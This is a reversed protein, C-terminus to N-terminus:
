IYYFKVLRAATNESASNTILGNVKINQQELETFFEETTRVIEDGTIRKAECDAAKWIVVDGLSTILITGLLHQRSVNKWGDFALTVGFQDNKANELLIESESDIANKLIRGGLVLRSLLTIMPNLWHFLRKVADNEIWQFAFGRSVMVELLLQELKHEQASTLPCFM